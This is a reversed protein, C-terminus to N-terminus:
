RAVVSEVVCAGRRVVGRPGVISRSVVAGDEVSGGALVVSDLLVAGVAVRAGPEVISYVSIWSESFPDDPADASAGSGHLTRLARVYEEATRMPISSGEPRRVVALPACGRAIPIAQEKLDVFGVDSVSRLRVCRLLFATAVDSGRHRVVSVGEGAAELAELVGALPERQLHNAVVVFVRDEDRLGRTLDKVVGATGRYEAADRVVTFAVRAPEPDHRSRPAPGCPDVSVIVNLRTEGRRAAVEEFHGAWLDFVTRHADVPLDLVSREVGDHFPDRGVHGALLIVERLAPATRIRLPSSPQLIM